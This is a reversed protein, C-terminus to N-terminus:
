QTAGIEVGANVVLEPPSFIHEVVKGDRIRLVEIPQDGEHFEGEYKELTVEETIDLGVLDDRM